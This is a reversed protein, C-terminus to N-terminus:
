YKDAPYRNLRHIASDLSKRGARARLKDVRAERSINISRKIFWWLRVLVSSLNIKIQLSHIEKKEKKHFNGFDVPVNSSLLREKQGYNLWSRGGKADKLPQKM